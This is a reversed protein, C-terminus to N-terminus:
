SVALKYIHMSIVMRGIMSPSVSNHMHAYFYSTVQSYYNDVRVYSMEALQRLRSTMRRWRWQGMAQNSPVLIPHGM